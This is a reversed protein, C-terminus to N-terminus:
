EDWIRRKTVVRIQGEVRILRVDDHTLQMRAIYERAEALSADSDDSAYLTHNAQMM